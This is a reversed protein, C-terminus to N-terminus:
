TDTLHGELAAKLISAEVPVDIELRGAARPLVLRPSGARGKKDLAMAALLDATALARGSRRRLADLSTPLGLARILAALREPLSEDQLRGLRGATRTALLLGVAVAVGHPLRGYGAAREIAHAFTHGLNLEKRRSGEHPDAAVVAAKTAVGHRVAERLAEADRAALAPARAEVRALDREGGVVATKVVEGLGSALEDEPLTALVDTDAFVARPQHLTGALNKGAGLNVATKGGVSADVQALLTTPCHVVEVGRMYLSAALGGLDSVVGGGLTVLRGGRDLGSEAM